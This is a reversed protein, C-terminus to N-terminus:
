GLCPLCMYLLWYYAWMVLTNQRVLSLHEIKGDEKKADYQASFKAIGTQLTSVFSANFLYFGALITGLIGYAEVGLARGMVFHYLFGLFGAIFSGIFLIINDRIIKSKKIRKFYEQM